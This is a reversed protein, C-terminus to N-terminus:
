PISLEPKEREEYRVFETKGIVTSQWEDEATSDSTHIWTAVIKATDEGNEPVYKGAWATSSHSSGYLPSTWTVTWGVTRGNEVTDYNGVLTYQHVDNGKAIEYIGSLQGDEAKSVSFFLGQDTFWKGVLDQGDMALLPAVLVLLTLAVKYM